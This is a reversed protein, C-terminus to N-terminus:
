KGMNYLQEVEAATLARNYVRVEDIIGNFAGGGWTGQGINLPVNNLISGSLNDYTVTGNSLNGDIYINVGSGLSTGNYTFAVHHWTNDDVQIVSNKVIRNSPSNWKNILFVRVSGPEVYFAWGTYSPAAGEKTVIPNELTTPAM